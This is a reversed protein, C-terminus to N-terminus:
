KSKQNAIRRNKNKLLQDALTEFSARPNFSDNYFRNAIGTTNSSQLSYISSSSM